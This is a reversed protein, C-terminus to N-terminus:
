KYYWNIKNPRFSGDMWEDVLFRFYRCVLLCFSSVSSSRFFYVRFINFVIIQGFLHWIPHYANDTTTYYIHTHPSRYNLSFQVSARVAWFLIILLFFCTRTLLVTKGDDICTSSLMFRYSPVFNKHVTCLVCRGTPSASTHYQSSELLFHINKTRHFENCFILLIYRIVISHQYNACARVSILVKRM